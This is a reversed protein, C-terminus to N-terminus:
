GTRLLALWLTAGSWGVRGEAACTECSGIAVGPDPLPSAARDAALGQVVEPLVRVVEHGDGGAATRVDAVVRDLALFAM